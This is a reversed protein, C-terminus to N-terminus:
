ARGNLSGTVAVQSCQSVADSVADSHLRAPMASISCRTHAEMLLVDSSVSDDAIGDSPAPDLQAGQCGAFCMYRVHTKGPRLSFMGWYMHNGVQQAAYQFM